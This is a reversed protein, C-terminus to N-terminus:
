RGTRRPAPAAPRTNAEIQNLLRNRELALANLETAVVVSKVQADKLEQFATAAASDVKPLRIADVNPNARFNQTGSEFREGAISRDINLLARQNNIGQRSIVSAETEARIKAQELQVKLQEARVQAPTLTGSEIKAQSDAINTQSRLVALRSEIEMQREQIALKAAEIRLRAQEITLTRAKVAEESNKFVNVKLGLANFERQIQTLAQTNGKAKEIRSELGSILSTDNGASNMANQLLTKANTGIAELRTMFQALTSTSDNLFAQLFAKEAAYVESTSARSATAYGRKIDLLRKAKEAETASSREIAAIEDAKQSERLKQEADVLAQRSAFTEDLAVLRVRVIEQAGETETRLGQAVQSQILGIVTDREKERLAIVARSNAASLNAIETDAKAREAIRDANLKAEEASGKWVRLLNRSHLIARASDERRLSEIRAENAAIQGGTTNRNEDVENLKGAEKLSALKANLNALDRDIVARVKGEYELVQDLARKNMYTVYSDFAKASETQATQIDKVAAARDDVSLRSLALEKNKQETVIAAYKRAADMRAILLEKEPAKQASLLDIRSKETEYQIQAARTAEEALLKIQAFSLQAKKEIMDYEDGTRAYTANLQKQLKLLGNTENGSATLAANFQRLQEASISGGDGLKKITRATAAFLSQTNQLDELKANNENETRINEWHEFAKSVGWVTGQLLAMIGITAGINKILAITGANMAVMAGTYQTAAPALGGFENKLQAIAGAQAKSRESVEEVAYAVDRLAESSPMWGTEVAQKVNKQAEDVNKKLERLALSNNKIGTVSETTAQNLRQFNEVVQQFNTKSTEQNFKKWGENLSDIQAQSTGAEPLALRTPAPAPAPAPASEPPLLWPDAIVTPGKHSYDYLSHVMDNTAATLAPLNDQFTDSIANLTGVARSAQSIVGAIEPNAFSRAKELHMDGTDPDVYDGVNIGPPLNAEALNLDKGTSGALEMVSQILKHSGEITGEVAKITVESTAYFRDFIVRSTEVGNEILAIGMEARKRVKAIEDSMMAYADGSSLATIPASPDAPEFPIRSIARGEDDGIIQALENLESTFRALDGGASPFARLENFATRIGDIDAESLAPGPISKLDIPSPANIDPALEALAVGRKEELKENMGPVGALLTAQNYAVQARENEFNLIARQLDERTELMGQLQTGSAEPIMLTLEKYVNVLEDLNVDLLENARRFTAELEASLKAVKGPNVKKKGEALVQQMDASEIAMLGDEPHMGMEMYFSRATDLPTLVVRQGEWLAELYAQKILAEGAGQGVEVAGLLDIYRTGSEIINSAMLGVIKDQTDVAAHLIAGEYAAAELAYSAIDKGKAIKYERTGEPADSYESPYDFIGQDFSSIYGVREAETAAAGLVEVVRPLVKTYRETAQVVRDLQETAEPAIAKLEQILPWSDAGAGGPPSLPRDPGPGALISGDPGRTGPPPTIIPGPSDTKSANLDDYAAKLKRVQAEEIALQSTTSNSMDNMLTATQVFEKNRNFLIDFLDNFSVKTGNIWQWVKRLSNTVGVIYGVTVILALGLSAAGGALLMFMGVGQKIPEPLAEFNETLWKIANAVPEIVIAVGKGLEILSDSIANMAQVAKIQKTGSMVAYAKDVEHGVGSAATQMQNLFDNFQAINDGGVASVGKFAEVSNFLLGQTEATKSTNAALENLIYSLGRAKLTEADFALGIRASERIAQQSPTVISAITAQLATFAQRAPVGNRTAAAIYANVEELSIGASAAAASVRGVQQAYQGVTIVGLNQVVIAEDTIRNMASQVDGLEKASAKYSNYVKTAAEAVTTIDTFGAVATKTSREVISLIDAQKEFGSSAIEYAANAAEIKNASNDLVQLTQSVGEAFEDQAGRVDKSVTAVRALAYEYKAFSQAAVTDLAVLGATTLGLRHTLDDLGRMAQEMGNMDVLIKYVADNAM